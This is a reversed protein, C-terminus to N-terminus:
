EVAREDHKAKDGLIVLAYRIKYHNVIYERIEQAQKGSSTGIQVQAQM